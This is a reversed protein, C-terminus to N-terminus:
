TWFVSQLYNAGQVSGLLILVENIIQFIKLFDHSFSHSRELTMTRTVWGGMFTPNNGYFYNDMTRYGNMIHYGYPTDIHCFDKFSTEGVLQFFTKTYKLNSWARWIKHLKTKVKIHVSM